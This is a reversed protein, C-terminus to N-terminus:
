KHSVVCKISEDWEKLMAEKYRRQYPITVFIANIPRASLAQQLLIAHKQVEVKAGYGPTDIVEWSGRGHAVQSLRIERTLSEESDVAAHYTNCLKNYVTTKGTGPRGLLVACFGNSYSTRSEVM